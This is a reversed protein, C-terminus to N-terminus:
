DKRDLRPQGKKRNEAIRREMEKQDAIARKAARPDIPTGPPLPTDFVTWDVEGDDDDDGDDEVLFTIM